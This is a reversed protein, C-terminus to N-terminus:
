VGAKPSEPDCKLDRLTEQKKLLPKYDPTIEPQKKHNTPSHQKLVDLLLTSLTKCGYPNTSLAYRTRDPKVSNKFGRLRRMYDMADPDQHAALKACAERMTQWLSVVPIATKEHPKYGHLAIATESILKALPSASTLLITSMTLVVEKVEKGLTHEMLDKTPTHQYFDHLHQLATIVKDVSSVSVVAKAEAKKEVKSDKAEVKTDKVDIPADSFAVKIIEEMKAKFAAASLKEADELKVSKFFAELKTFEASHKVFLVKFREWLTEIRKKGLAVAEQIRIDSNKNSSTILNKEVDETILKKVQVVWAGDLHKLSAPYEAIAATLQDAIVETFKDAFRTPSSSSDGNGQLFTRLFALKPTGGNGSDESVLLQKLVEAKEKSDLMNFGGLPM